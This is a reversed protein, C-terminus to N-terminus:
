VNIPDSKDIFIKTILPELSPIDKMHIKKNMQYFKEFTDWMEKNSQVENIFSKIRNQASYSQGKYIYCMLFPSISNMLLTHEGFSARELGESFKENIFSNIATFFGGFLHDEFSKDEIFSQSFFPIGGESVILLLVPEEDSLEPVEITRKRIMHELQENLRALKMREPFSTESEKLNEWMKLQRLLEDHENSIKMALRKIGYSEAIKQAQTLFRRAAKVDLNILALKSQLIFTECFYLYSHSKEARTLLQAIYQNVEDLVELNNNLRFESLLLDCLHVLANITIAVSFNETEIVHKLLKEVKAKDRIRSSRKLMLAKSYQYMAVIYRDKKENCLNELQNYYQQALEIDGKVLAMSILNSLINVLHTPNREWLILSEELYKLALDYNGIIGNTYGINNLIGSLYWRNKLQKLIALSKMYHELSLEFEGTNAYIVGYLLHCSAIWFLNFKMEKAISMAKNIYEIAIDIESKVNYCFAAMNLYALVIEFSNGLEKKLGLTWEYCNKALELNGKKFNIYGKIVNIRAKRPLLDKQSIHSISKLLDESQEIVELAEEFKEFEILGFLIFLLGDVSQLNQNFKQNEKFIQEGFTIAEEFKGQYILTLGKLFQYYGKQQLDLGELQILNDLLERAEDLKGADFLEEARTLHNLESYSM